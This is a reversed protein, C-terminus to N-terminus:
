PTELWEQTSLETGMPPCWPSMSFNEDRGQNHTRRRIDSGQLFVNGAPQAQWTDTDNKRGTNADTLRSVRLLKLDRSLSLDFHFSNEM